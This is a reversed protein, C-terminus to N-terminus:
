QAQCQFTGCKTDQSKCAQAGGIHISAATCKQQDNYACQCASCDIAINECGCGCAANNSASNETREQFSSCSTEDAYHANEGAVKIEGKSCLEEKNYICTVATCRLVPM